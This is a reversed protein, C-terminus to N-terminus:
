GKIETSNVLRRLDDGCSPCFRFFDERLSGSFGSFSSIVRKWSGDKLREYEIKSSYHNTLGYKASLEKLLKINDARLKGVKLGPYDRIFAEHGRYENVPNFQGCKCTRKIPKRKLKYDRTMKDDFGLFGVVGSDSGSDGLVLLHPCYFVM